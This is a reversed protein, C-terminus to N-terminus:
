QSMRSSRENIGRTSRRAGSGSRTSATRRASGSACTSGIPVDALTPPPVVQSTSAISPNPTRRAAASAPTGATSSRATDFRTPSASRERHRKSSANATSASATGRTSAASAHRPPDYKARGPENQEAAGDDRPQRDVEARFLDWGAQEAADGLPLRRRIPRSVMELDDDGVAREAEEVHVVFVVEDAIQLERVDLSDTRDLGAGAREREPVPM